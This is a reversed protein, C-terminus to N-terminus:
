LARHCGPVRPTSHQSLGHVPPVRQLSHRVGACQALPLGAAAQWLAAASAVRLAAVGASM